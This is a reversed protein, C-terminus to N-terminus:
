PGVGPMPALREVRGDRLVGVAGPYRYETRLLRAVEDSYGAAM